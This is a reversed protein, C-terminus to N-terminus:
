EPEDDEDLEEEIKDVDEADMLEAIEGDSVGDDEGDEHHGRYGAMDARLEEDTTDIKQLLKMRRNYKAVVEPRKFANKMTSLKPMPLQGLSCVYNFAKESINHLIKARVMDEDDYCKSRRKDQVLLLRIQSDTFMRSKLFTKIIQNKANVPVSKVEFPKRKKSLALKIKLNEERKKLMKNERKLVRAEDNDYVHYQLRKIQEQANKLSQCVTEYKSAGVGKGGNIPQQHVVITKPKPKNKETERNAETQIKLEEELASMKNKQKQAEKKLLEIQETAQELEIEKRELFEEKMALSEKLNAIEKQKEALYNIVVEENKASFLDKLPINSDYDVSIDNDSSDEDNQPVEEILEDDSPEELDSDPYVVECCDAPNMAEDDEVAVTADNLLSEFQLPPPADALSLYQTPVFDPKLRFKRRTGMLESQMDREFDDEMFHFNCLRSSSQNLELDDPMAAKFKEFWEDDKPMPVLYIWDSRSFPCVPVCCTEKKM